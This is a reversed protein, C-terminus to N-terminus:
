REAVGDQLRWKKSVQELHSCIEDIQVETYPVLLKDYWM